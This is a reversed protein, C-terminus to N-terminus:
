KAPDTHPTVALTVPTPRGVFGFSVTRTDGARHALYRAERETDNMTDVADFHAPPNSTQTFGFM